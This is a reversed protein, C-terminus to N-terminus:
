PQAPRIVRLVAERTLTDIVQTVEGRRASLLCGEVITLILHAYSAPSREFDFAGAAKGKELFTALSALLRQEFAEYFISVQPDEAAGVQALYGSFVVAREQSDCLELLGVFFGNLGQPYDKTNELPRILNQEFIECLRALCCRYLDEKDKFHWYLAATTLGCSKAITAISVAGLGLRGYLSFAAELIEERTAQATKDRRRAM